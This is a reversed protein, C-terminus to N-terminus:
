KKDAKKEKKEASYAPAIAVAGFMAAVAIALVKKM